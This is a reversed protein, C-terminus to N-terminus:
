RYTSKLYDKLANLFVVGSLYAFIIRTILHWNKIHSQWEILAGLSYFIATLFIVISIYHIANKM